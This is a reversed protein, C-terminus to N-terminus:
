GATGELSDLLAKAALLDRTAFGETFRRYVGSLLEQAQLKRHEASWLRALSVASRLEWALARQRRSIDIARLFLEEAQRREPEDAGVLLIEGGARLIEATCWSLGERERLASIQPHLLRGSFSALTDMLFPTVLADGLLSDADARTSDDAGELIDLARQYVIGASRWVNFAIGSAVDLLSAVHRRASALDGAWVSVPVAGFVLFFGRAFPQDIKSANEGAVRVVELASDADGTMWLIRAYHASTATKHDYVFVGDRGARQKVAALDLALEAHRRATPQDGLLHHALGALRNYLPAVPVGPSSEAIAAVRELSPLMQPYYGKTAFAGCRAWLIQLQANVDGLRDAIELAKNLAQATEDVPGLMHFISHALAFHLRLLLQDDIQEHRPALQVARELLGRLEPVLLLKFWFPASTAIIKIALVPDDSLFAWDIAARIDAIDGGHSQLWQATPTDLWDEGTGFTCRCFHEAHARRVCEAERNELLKGFAYLRLSELMRYRVETALVDVAVLSKEVLSDLIEILPLGDSDGGDGAGGGGGIATAAELTFTGIFVSLRRWVTKEDDSLTEYSWDIMAGLSQHRPAATRLGKTLLKFRDDLREAVARIGFVSARAAALEIALPLGDLRRCLDAIVPLDTDDIRFSADCAALRETFLRVSPFALGQDMTRAEAAAPAALPALRQVWEGAVRLPERSTALIHVEAAGMLMQEAISGAAEVLHECNDLVLLLSRTRLYALVSDLPQEDFTPLRLMSALHAALLKPGALASLDLIRVGDRYAGAIKEAVSLAVATKGMGGAGTITVFRRAQLESAIRAVDGDRGVIRTLAAPVFSRGDSVLARPPMADVGDNGSARVEGVFAYGRGPVNAVFRCGRQGDGLAKRLTGVNVRLNSEEVVSRPWVIEFLERKSVVQGRREILAILLDLARDGLHVPSGKQTLTRASPLLRFDGFDFVEPRIRTAQDNM